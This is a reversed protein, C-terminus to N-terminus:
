ICTGKQRDSPLRPLHEDFIGNIVPLIYKYDVLHGEGPSNVVKNHTHKVIDRRRMSISM